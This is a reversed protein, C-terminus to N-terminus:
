EGGGVASWEGERELHAYDNYRPAFRRDPLAPYAAGEGAYHDLLRRLGSEAESALLLPDIEARNQRPRRIEGGEAGGKLRWHALERIAVDGRLGPFAGMRALMAELALQPAYGLLIDQDSPLVGTKYDIVALGGERMLDLRDAKATLDFPLSGEIIRAKASAETLTRLINPRRAREEGLFWIAIREFRPWWFAWVKPRRLLEGFADRGIDLLTKLPDAPAHDAHGALYRDLAAHIITGLDAFGPDQDLPDLKRLDLIRAAYIAYPDRRWAEIRTVSLSKPRYLPGPRPAPRPVPKAAGADDLRIALNRTAEGASLGKLGLCARLADLRLLWRSPMTPQGDVRLARTLLVRRAGLAQQFDHAALGIRRELAPLGFQRRMPRSMWPDDGGQAPWTGENLGGLIMLDAQQLRAELPGWIFLRPHRGYRPRVEIGSLLELLLAEFGSPDTAPLGAFAEVADALFEALAEGAEGVYLLEAGSERDSAALAEAAEMLSALRRGPSTPEAWNALAHTRERLNALGRFLDAHGKARGEPDSEQALAALAAEIGTWDPAPRPGRLIALELRGAWIGLAGQSLGANALKHKLLALLPVPAWAQAAALALTLVFVGPACRSLPKGASDDIEIRWRRLEGAVRQALRRDPTVLAANGKQGEALFQRFAIAIVLAEERENRCDVRELDAWIAEGALESNGLGPWSDTRAAPLLAKSIARARAGLAHRIEMGPWPTVQARQVGLVRLLRSLGFQPHSPEDAIAKWDDEDPTFDLGPLVITGQPLSAIAAMLRASAPISGTSGAAIVPGEPPRARWLRAQLDLLLNRRSAPDIAGEQELVLPWQRRLIDLFDLTVQWHGALEAQALGDLGDLSLGETGVEDLLRALASALQIAQDLRINAPGAGASGRALILRALMMRRRLPALSPPIEFAEGLIGPGLVMLDADDLDGIPQLRPLLTAGGSGMRSLFAEQLARCARRNPLLVIMRSLALMEGGSKQWLGDALSDVFSIGTPIFHINPVTESPSM